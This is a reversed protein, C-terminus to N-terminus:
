KGGIRVLTASYPPLSISAKGGSVKPGVEASLQNPKEASFRWLRSAGGDHGTISLPVTITAKPTKNILVLTLAGTKSETASFVALREGQGYTSQCGRDGFGAQGPEPRRFLQFAAAAPTFLKPRTWFCAVDVGERGFVGLAEAAALGGSIDGEAGFSWEGIALKTGPYCQAIWDKMRPILRVSPGDGTNAIWSEDRYDKDWLSRVSRIRLARLAPDKADSYINEGQPYYHIDLVDLTRKGRKADFAKAQQLFWPIFPTDGHARRDAGTRFDDTGRDLASYFYSIWGSVAPGAVLATPDVAKVATAYDTFNKFTDDYGMQAPHVDRHTHSWLDPENDMAYYKVGSGAGNGHLKVLHNIWEDQYVTDGPAPYLEFPKNKRAVSRVSTRNRNETPDYGAIPGDCGSVGPGTNWPVNESKVQINGNKAVWGLTPVTMYSTIGLARNDQVFADAAGGAKTQPKEGAHNRFEWDSGSNWLNSVWNHRSNPNGGWRNLTAGLAEAEQKSAHAVGYITPSIAHKGAQTDVAVPITLAKPAEPLSTDPMLSIDDFGVQGSASPMACQLVVGSIKDGVGVGMAKLPISIKQWGDKLGVAGNVVYSGLKLQRRPKAYEDFVTAMVTDPAGKYLFELSGYGDAPFATHHFYLGESGKLTMAIGNIGNAAMAASAKDRTAWSWDDWGEGMGDRYVVIPEDARETPAVPILGKPGIGTTTAFSKVLGKASERLGGAEKVRKIGWVGALVAVSGVSGLVAFAIRERRLRQKQAAEEQRRRAARAKARRRREEETLERVPTTSMANIM